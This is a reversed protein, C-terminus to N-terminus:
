LLLGVYENSLSIPFFFSQSVKKMEKSLLENKKVKTLLPYALVNKTLVEMVYCLMPEWGLTLKEELQRKHYYNFRIITPLYLFFINTIDM